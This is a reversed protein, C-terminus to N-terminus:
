AANRNRYRRITERSVAFGQARLQREAERLSTEPPLAWMAAKVRERPTQAAELTEGVGLQPWWEDRFFRRKQEDPLSLVLAKQWKRRMTSDEHELAWWLMLYIAGQFDRDALRHEVVRLQDRFIERFTPPERDLEELITDLARDVGAPRGDDTLLGGLGEGGNVYGCRRGAIDVPFDGQTAGGGETAYHPDAPVPFRSDNIARADRERAPFRHALRLSEKSSGVLPAARKKRSSPSSGSPALGEGHSGATGAVSESGSRGLLHANPEFQSDKTSNM